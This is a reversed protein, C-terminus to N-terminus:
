SGPLPVFEFGRAEYRELLLELAAVTEDRAREDDTEGAPVGDHLLVVWGDAGCGPACPPRMMQELRDVLEAGPPQPHEWDECEADWLWLRLGLAAVEDAMPARTSAPAWVRRGWPPRFTTPRRGTVSEIATSTERVEDLYTTEAGVEGPQISHTMTHNGVTSGQELAARVLDPHELVYEGVMFFTARARHRSLCDLVAPTYDPHPGDDFTIHMTATM